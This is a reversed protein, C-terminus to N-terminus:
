RGVEKWASPVVRSRGLSAVAQRNRKQKVSAVAARRKLRNLVLVPDEGMRRSVILRHGVGRARILAGQGGWSRAAVCGLGLATGRGQWFEGSGERAQCRGAHRILAAHVTPALVTIAM